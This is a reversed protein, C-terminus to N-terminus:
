KKLFKKKKQIASRIMGIHRVKAKEGQAVKARLSRVNSEINEKNKQLKKNEKELEKIKNQIEPVSTSQKYLGEIVFEKVKNVIYPSLIRGARNGKPYTMTKFLHCAAVIDDDSLSKINDILEIRKIELRKEHIKIEQDQHDNNNVANVINTIELIKKTDSKCNCAKRLHNIQKNQQTMKLIYFKLLLAFVFTKSCESKNIGYFDV